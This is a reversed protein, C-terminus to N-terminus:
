PAPTSAASKFGKVLTGTVLESSGVRVTATIGDSEVILGQTLIHACRGQAVTGFM